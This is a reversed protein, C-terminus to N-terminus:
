MMSLNILMCSRTNVVALSYRDSSMRFLRCYVQLGVIVVREDKCCLNLNCYRIPYISVYLEIISLM